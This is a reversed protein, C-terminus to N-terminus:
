STIIGDLNKSVIADDSSQVISALRQLQEEREYLAAEIQKRGTVDRNVEIVTGDSLLQQRSEVIVESGDKCIHHLEGSWYRENQLRTILENLAVPFKTQLLVHSIRGLAEGPTFGYLREAGTNWFEIPGNLEWVLMPEYSLTLLSALREARESGAEVRFFEREILERSM